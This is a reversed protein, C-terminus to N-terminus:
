LRRFVWNAQSCEAESLVLGCAKMGEVLAREDEPVRACVEILLSKVRPDSLTARGGKLVLDEIGDVDIKIHNPFPMDAIGVLDDLRTVIAALQTRKDAAEALTSGVAGSQDSVIGLRVLGEGDGLALCLPVIRGELQNLLTNRILAEFSFPNPEVAVCRCGSSAAYLSYLGINAGVDYLVEDAAFGDIWRCTEPESSTGQGAWYAGQRDLVVLRISQAGISLRVHSMLLYRVHGLVKLARRQGFLGATAKVLASLGHALLRTSSLKHAKPHV